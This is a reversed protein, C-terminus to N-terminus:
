GFHRQACRLQRRDLRCAGEFGVDIIFKAFGPTRLGRVGASNIECLSAARRAAPM